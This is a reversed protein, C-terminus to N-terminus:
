RRKRQKESPRTYIWPRIGALYAFCNFPFYSILRNFRAANEITEIRSQIELDHSNVSVDVEKSVIGVSADTSPWGNANDNVRLGGGSFRRRLRKPRRCRKYQAQPSRNETRRSETRKTAQRRDNTKMDTGQFSHNNSHPYPSDATKPSDDGAENRLHRLPEIYTGRQM